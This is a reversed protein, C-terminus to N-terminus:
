RTIILPSDTGTELLDRTNLAVPAEQDLWKYCTWYGTTSVSTHCNLVEHALCQARRSGHTITLAPNWANNECASLSKGM